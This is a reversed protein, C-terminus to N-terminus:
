KMEHHPPLSLNQCLAPLVSHLTQLGSLAVGRSIVRRHNEFGPRRTGPQTPKPPQRSGDGCVRHSLVVFTSEGVSQLGSDLILTHAPGGGRRLSGPLTSRGEEVVQRERARPRRKWRDETEEETDRVLDKNDPKPGVQIIWSLRM